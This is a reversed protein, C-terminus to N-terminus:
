APVYVFNNLLPSCFARPLHFVSEAGLGAVALRRTTTYHTFGHGAMDILSQVQFRIDRDDTGDRVGSDDRVRVVENAEVRKLRPREKRKGENGGVTKVTNM